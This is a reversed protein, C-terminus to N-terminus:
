KLNPEYDLPVNVIFYYSISKKSATVKTYVLFNVLLALWM